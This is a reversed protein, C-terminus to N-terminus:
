QRCEYICRLVFLDQEWVRKYVGTIWESLCVFTGCREGAPARDNWTHIATVHIASTTSNTRPTKKMPLKTRPPSPRCHTETQRRGADRNGPRTHVHECTRAASAICECIVFRSPARDPVQNFSMLKRIRTSRVRVRASLSHHQVTRAGKTNKSDLGVPRM